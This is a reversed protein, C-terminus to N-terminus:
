NEGKTIIKLVKEINGQIAKNHIQSTYCYIIFSNPDYCKISFTEKYYPNEQDRCTYIEIDNLLMNINERQIELEKKLNTMVETERYDKMDM